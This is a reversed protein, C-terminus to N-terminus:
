RPVPMNRFEQFINLNRVIPPNDHPQQVCGYGFVSSTYGLTLAYQQEVKSMSFFHSGSKKLEYIQTSPWTGAACEHVSSYNGGPELPASPSLLAGKSVPTYAYLQTPSYANVMRLSTKHADLAGFGSAPAHIVTTSVTQRNTSETMAAVLQQPTANPRLSLLRTMLGSVIPAAFSTGNANSAYASTPNSSTWSTSALQTGPALLDLERGWSSFSAPQSNTALAGVAVVEPYNAPYVMCDCGDNGSAAVVTVGEALAAWVAERVLEDPQDSGLSLNIVDAGQDVAYLIARHVSWSDGYGDDDLAQIPLIKTGWDVGAVGKGNNGTAAALGAVISGHTTGSGTTNLEGAQPLEDFNIFDWGNIDDIYGNADDDVRNCEKTLPKGQDSCNLRSPNEYPAGGTENDVVNDFDDDILNCSANRALGRDTCNLSSPAESAVPGSEAQNAHWRNAFEDHKLAFGTDIIALTTEQNGRPIDWTNPLKANTEWWQGAYTDNPTVMPKYLHVPYSKNNLTMTRLPAPSKITRAITKPPTSTTDRAIQFPQNGSPDDDEAVVHGGDKKPLNASQAPSAPTPAITDTSSRMFFM